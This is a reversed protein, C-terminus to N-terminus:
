FLNDSYLLRKMEGTELNPSIVCVVSGRRQRADPQSESPCGADLVTARVLPHAIKCSCHVFNEEYCVECCVLLILVGIGSNSLCRRCCKNVPTEYAMGNMAQPPMRIAHAIANAGIVGVPGSKEFAGRNFSMRSM